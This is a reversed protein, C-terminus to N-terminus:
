VSKGVRREESQFVPDGEGYTFVSEEFARREEETRSPYFATIADIADQMASTTTLVQEHTALEWLLPGYVEPKEVGARLLKAWLFASRNKAAIVSLILKAKREDANRMNEMFQLLIMGTSDPHALDIEWGWYRSGDEIIRAMM